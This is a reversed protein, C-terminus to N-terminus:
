EAAKILLKGSKIELKYSGNDTSIEIGDTVTGKFASSLVYVGTKDLPLPEVADKDAGVIRITLTNGNTAIGKTTSVNIYKKLLIDVDTDGLCNIAKATVTDNFIIEGSLNLTGAKATGDIATNKLTVTGSASIAAMEPKCNELVLENAGANITYKVKAGKANLSILEIDKLILKGTAAVSTGTFSISRKIGEEDAKIEISKYTGKTPLKLAGGVNYDGLIEIVYDAKANKQNQIYTVMDNWLAFTKEGVKLKKGRFYVKDSITILEYDVGDAPTIAALDFVDLDATKTTFLQTGDTVTGTIAIKGTAKGTIKIPSIGAALNLKAGEAGSIDKLQVKAGAPVMLVGNEGIALNEVVAFSKRAGFSGNLNVTKFGSVTDVMDCGDVTLAFKASGKIATIKESEVNEINLNQSATITIPKVADITVNKLTFDTKTALSTIKIFSINYGSGDLEISKATNPLDMTDVVADSNLVLKYNKTKVKGKDNINKIASEFDCYDGVKEEGDYLTVLETFCARIEKSYAFAGLARGKEDTNIFSVQSAIDNKGGNYLVTTGSLIGITNNEEDVVKVYVIEEKPISTITAKSIIDNGNKDTGKTVVLSGSMSTVTATAKTNTLKLGGDFTTIGSIKEGVSLTSGFAIDVAGFTTVKVASADSEVALETSNTGSLANINDVNDLTVKKNKAGKIDLPMTSTVDKLTLDGTGSLTIKKDNVINVNELTFDYKPSLTAVGTLSLTHGAGNITISKAKAPLVLKTGDTDANLVIEYDASKKVKGLEAENAKIKAFVLELDPYNRDKVNNIYLSLQDAYCAKIEKNYRFATLEKNDTNVNNVIVEGTTDSATALYLITTKNKLKVEEGKEDVVTIELKELVNKITVKPIIFNGKTDTGSTLEFVANEVNTISATAKPNTLKLAGGLKAVGSVNGTVTLTCDDKINVEKFSSVSAATMDCGVKLVSTATGSITVLNALPKEFTLTKGAAVKVAIAKGAPQAISCNLIVDTATSISTGSFTIVADDTTVLSISKAEKPFSLAQETLDTNVTVIYENEPKNLKKILTFAAAVTGVEEYVEGYKLVAGKYGYPTVTVIDKDTWKSWGSANGALVIFEYAKGNTLGTVNYSTDNTVQEAWETTGNLRYMVKYNAAGEVADWTLTINGDGATAKVNSPKEPATTFNRYAYFAVDNDYSTEAKKGNITVPTSDVLSLGEAGWLEIKVTYEKGAEFKDNEGLLIDDCSWEVSLISYGGLTDLIKCETSPTEGVVPATVELSPAIEVQPFYVFAVSKQMKNLETVGISDPKKDLEVKSFDYLGGCSTVSTWLQWGDTDYKKGAEQPVARFLDNFHDSIKRPEGNEDLLKSEIFSDWGIEGNTKPDLATVRISSQEFLNLRKEHPYELLFDSISTTADKQYIYFPPNETFRPNVEWISNPKANLLALLAGNTTDKGQYLYDLIDKTNFESDVGNGCVNITVKRCLFLNNTDLNPDENVWTNIEDWVAKEYKMASSSIKFSNKVGDYYCLYFYDNDEDLPSESDKSVSIHRDNGSSDTEQRLLANKVPIDLTKYESKLQLITIGNSFIELADDSTGTEIDASYLGKFTDMGISISEDGASFKVPEDTSKVARTSSIEGNDETIGYWPTCSYEKLPDESFDYNTLSIEVPFTSTTQASEAASITTASPDETTVIYKHQATIRIDSYDNKNTDQFGEFKEVLVDGSIAETGTAYVEKAPTFGSDYYSYSYYVGWLNNSTLYPSVWEDKQLESYSVQRSNDRDGDCVSVNPNSISASATLPLATVAISGALLMALLGKLRKKFM